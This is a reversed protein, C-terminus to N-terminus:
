WTSHVVRFLCDRGAHFERNGRYRRKAWGKYNAKGRNPNWEYRNTVPNLVVTPDKNVFVDKEKDEDWVMAKDKNRVWRDAKRIRKGHKELMFRTFDARTRRRYIRFFGDRFQDIVHTMEGQTLRVVM